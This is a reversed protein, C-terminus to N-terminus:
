TQDTYSLVAYFSETTGTLRQCALVVVDSVGAITAGLAYDNQGSVPLSGSVTSEGYGSGLVTGGTVKTVNTTAVDAEISANTVASYSLATGSVTPNLLLAWRFVAASPCFVSVGAIRVTSALATSKLRVAIVPYLDSDNLTVLPTSARDLALSLGTVDLGGESSVSACIAEFTAAGGTGTNSLEYRVPLNPSSMYVGAGRNAREAHHVYIIAGDVVFGMRARGVGLWEFDIVAIQSTAPDFTIGSPGTSDLTDESWDAQEIPTDVPSGTASSRIVWRVGSDTQELFIGNAADYYGVRRTIGTLGAGLTFTVFILQSKGPQYAFRRKTQRVRTGATNASVSLVSSATATSHATGTGGGATEADDWFLPQADRLQKSDFLTAPESVRWRGFADTSGTDDGSVLVRQYQEGGRPTTAITAPGNRNGGLVGAM